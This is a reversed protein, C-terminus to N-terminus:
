ASSGRSSTTSSRGPQPNGNPLYPLGSSATRPRKSIAATTTRPIARLGRQVEIPEADKALIAVGNWSRQGHWIAGYGSRPDGRDSLRKDLAKLEQLCAIDPSEKEM